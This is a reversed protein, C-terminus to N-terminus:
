GTPEDLGIHCRKTVHQGAEIVAFPGVIASPHIFIGSAIKAFKSIFGGLSGDPNKHRIAEEVDDGFEFFVQVTM